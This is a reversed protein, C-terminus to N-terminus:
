PCHIIQRLEHVFQAGAVQWNLRKAFDQYAEGCMAAYRNRDRLLPRLAECYEEVGAAPPLLMGTRGHLVASSVGGVARSVSPLAYASAEAFVLGFCEAVTPLLLVHSSLLVQHLRARDVARKKSLFGFCEVYPLVAVEAPPRCGIISLLSKTGLENLRKVIAVALDGGKRQWDAGVFVFRAVSWDRAAVCVSAEAWSSFPPECNAGFPIVRIKTRPIGYFTAADDGAWESAYCILSARNLAAREVRDGGNVSARAEGAYAPYTSRLAHFTADTWIALPTASELFAVPLTGPSVIADVPQLQAVRADAIRSWRAAATPSRELSYTTNWLSQYLRKRLRLALPYNTGLQDVDAVSCGQRLLSARIAANLGSWEHIDDSKGVSVYALRLPSRESASM